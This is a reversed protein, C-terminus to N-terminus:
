IYYSLFSLYNIKDFIDRPSIKAKKNLYENHPAYYIEINNEKEILLDEIMLEDKTYKDKLSLKMIVEKYTLIDICYM